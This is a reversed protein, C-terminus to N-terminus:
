GLSANVRLGRVVLVAGVVVVLGATLLPLLRGLRSGRGFAWGRRDLLSQARLMLLGAATLTGAMGVGYLLVLVVGFWARGLYTAGLLVVLASPSPVLGGAVGMSALTRWGIPGSPVEHSHTRGGHTHVPSPALAVAGAAPAPVLLPEHPHPHDPDDHAHDHAAHDDHAHDHPGHDHAAHGDGHDHAHDHPGHDHDHDHAEDGLRRRVALVLLYVGVLALLVGSIVETVPVVREPSALTTLTIAAGLLLVGATHTFTVVAGLQLAQRRTGKQGVLYAALVTKGHGPALAHVAGFGLAVLASLLAFPLTLDRRGLFDTVSSALGGLGRPLATREARPIADDNASGGTCAKAPLTFSAARVDVPRSLLDAPYHTLLASPSDAAVGPFAGCGSTATVERWGTRGASSDDTFAVAAGPAVDGTLRCSLRTTPLGGQGPGPEAASATVALPVPRGDATLSLLAADSTCADAAYATLEPASLRGDRDADWRGRLQVTPLEALDVLHQVELGSRGAVLRDATNVTFNGLPHASAPGSLGVLAALVLAALLALRARLTM